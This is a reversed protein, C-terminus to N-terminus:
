FNSFNWSVNPANTSNDVAAPPASNVSDDSAMSQAASQAASQNPGAQPKEPAARAQSEKPPALTYCVVRRGDSTTVPLAQSGQQAPRCKALKQWSYGQALQADVTELFANQNNSCSALVVGFAFLGAARAFQKTMIRM